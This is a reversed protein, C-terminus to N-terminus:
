PTWAFGAYTVYQPSNSTLGAALNAFVSLNDNPTWIGGWGIVHQTYSNGALGTVQCIGTLPDSSSCTTKEAFRTFRPLSAGNHYGNIFLAVDETIDHQVAWQLTVDWVQESIDDPNQFRAAGVNYELALDWFINQDFNFSFSPELGSSFEPSGLLNTQLLMELGAAPLYWDTQEDWFHIKTDFTLPSFGLASDPKGQLSLGQSYLRIEWNNMLGYRLLYEANFQWSANSSTGVMSYPATELYFGGKPLTYASNPFNALDAGPTRIDLLKNEESLTIREDVHDGTPSAAWSVTQYLTAIALVSPMCPWQRIIM